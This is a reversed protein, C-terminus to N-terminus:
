VLLMTHRNVAWASVIVKIVPIFDEPLNASKPSRCAVLSLDGDDDLIAVGRLQGNGDRQQKALEM